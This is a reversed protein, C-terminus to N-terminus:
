TKLNVQDGVSLGHNVPIRYYILSVERQFEILPISNVVGDDIEHGGAFSYALTQCLSGSQLRYNSSQYHAYISLPIELFGKKYILGKHYCIGDRETDVIKSITKQQIQIHQAILYM